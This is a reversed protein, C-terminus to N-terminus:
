FVIVPCTENSEVEFNALYLEDNLIDRVTIDMDLQEESLTGLEAFLERYTM